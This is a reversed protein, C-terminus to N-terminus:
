RLRWTAQKGVRGFRIPWHRLRENIAQLTPPLQDHHVPSPVSRPWGADEFAQFMLRQNPAERTFTYVFDNGWRLERREGDWLPHSPADKSPSEEVDLGRGESQQAALLDPGAAERKSRLALRRGRSSRPLVRDLFWEDFGPLNELEWVKQQDRVRNAARRFAIMGPTPIFFNESVLGFRKNKVRSRGEENLYSLLLDKAGYRDADELALNYESGVFAARDCCAKTVAARAYSWIVRITERDLESTTLWAPPVDERSGRSAAETLARELAQAAAENKLLRWLTAHGIRPVTARAIGSCSKEARLRQLKETVVFGPASWGFLYKLWSLDPILGRRLWRIYSNIPSPLGAEHCIAVYDWAKSTRRVQDATAVTVHNPADEGRSVWGEFWEQDKTVGWALWKDIMQVSVHTGYFRRFTSASQEPPRIAAAAIAQHSAEQRFAFMADTPTWGEHGRPLPAHWDYLWTSIRPWFQGYKKRWARWNQPDLEARQLVAYPDSAEHVLRMDDTPVFLMNLGSRYFGPLLGKLGIGDNKRSYSKKPALTSMAPGKTILGPGSTREDCRLWRRAAL